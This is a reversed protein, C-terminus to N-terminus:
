TSLKKENAWSGTDNSAHNLRGDIGIQDPKPLKQVPQFGVRLNRDTIDIKTALLNFAQFAFNSVDFANQVAIRM